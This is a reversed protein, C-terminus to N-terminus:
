WRRTAGPKPSFMNNYLYLWVPKASFCLNSITIILSLQHFAHPNLYISGKPVFSQKMNTTSKKSRIARQILARTQALDEEIKELSTM